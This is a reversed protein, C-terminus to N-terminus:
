ASQSHGDIGIIEKMRRCRSLSFRRPKAPNGIAPLEAKIIEDYSVTQGPKCFNEAPADDRVDVFFVTEDQGSEDSVIVLRYKM